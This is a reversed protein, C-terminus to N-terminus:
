YPCEQPADKSASAIALPSSFTDWNPVGSDVFKERGRLCARRAIRLSHGLRIRGEESSRGAEFERWISGSAVRVNETTYVYRDAALWLLAYAIRHLKIVQM